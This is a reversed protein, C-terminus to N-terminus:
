GGGPRRSTAVRALTQLNSWELRLDPRERIPVIHDVETAFANMCHTRIKCIQNAALKATRVRGIGLRARGYHQARSQM